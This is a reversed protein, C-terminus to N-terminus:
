DLSAQIQFVRILGWSPVSLDIWKIVIVTNIYDLHWWPKEHSFNNLFNLLKKDVKNGVLKEFRVCSHTWIMYCEGIVQTAEGSACLMQESKLCFLRVAKGINRAVTCSLAEDVLSVSMESFFPLCPLQLKPIIPLPFYVLCCKVFLPISLTSLSKLNPIENLILM